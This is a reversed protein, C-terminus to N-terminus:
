ESTDGVMGAEPVTKSSSTDSETTNSNGYITKDWFGRVVIDAMMDVTDRVQILQEDSLNLHGLMAKTEEIPTM